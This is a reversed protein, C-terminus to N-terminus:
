TTRMASARAIRVNELVYHEASDCIFSAYNDVIQSQLAYREELTPAGAALLRLSDIQREKAATYEGARAIAEHLARQLHRMDTEAARLPLPRCVLLLIVSFMGITRRITM